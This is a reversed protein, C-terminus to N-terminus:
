MLYRVEHKSAEPSPSRSRADPWVNCNPSVEFDVLHCKEYCLIKALLFVYENGSKISINVCEESGVINKNLECDEFIRFDSLRYVNLFLM